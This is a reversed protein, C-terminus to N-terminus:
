TRLKSKSTKKVMHIIEYANEFASRVEPLKLPAVLKFNQGDFSHELSLAGEAISHMLCTFLVM